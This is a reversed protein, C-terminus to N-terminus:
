WSGTVRHESMCACVCVRIRLLEWRITLVITDCKNVYKESQIISRSTSIRPLVLANVPIRGPAPSTLYFPQPIRVTVSGEHVM